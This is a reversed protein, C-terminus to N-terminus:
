IIASVLEDFSIGGLYEGVSFGALANRIAETEYLTGALAKEINGVDKDGFFDGFIKVNELRGRVVSLHIQIIGGPFKTERRTNFAPNHGYIWEPTAHKNAAKSKVKDWDGESLRLLRSSGAKKMVSDLLYARFEEIDMPAPMHGSINTVRSKVSAVGKDRLKLSSVKLAKGMEGTDASYMLTGHHLLKGGYVCQANGSFKRGKIVMDNRGTFEAPIGLSQMASLVPEAFKRFDTFNQRGGQSIFTFMINGEDTFVAGGGTIRRVIKIGREKVYPLNLESYVNQNRGLLIAKQNRWLMFCDEEYNEMLWEELAHNCYPDTNFNEVFLM